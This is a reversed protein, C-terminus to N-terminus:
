VVGADGQSVMVFSRSLCMMELTHYQVKSSPYLHIDTATAMALSRCDPNQLTGTHRDHIRRDNAIDHIGPDETRPKNLLSTHTASRERPCYNVSM